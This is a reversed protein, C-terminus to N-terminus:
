VNSWGGDIQIVIDIVEEESSCCSKRILTKLEHWVLEIPNLDPSRPPSRIWNISNRELFALCERSKHKPDNDQHLIFDFDFKVVGFPILFESLIINYM